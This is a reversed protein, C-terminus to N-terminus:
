FHKQVQGYNNSLFKTLLTLENKLSYNENKLKMMETEADLQYKKFKTELVRIKKM